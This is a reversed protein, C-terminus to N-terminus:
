RGGWQKNRRRVDSCMDEQDDWGHMDGGRGHVAAAGPELVVAVGVERVERMFSLWSSGRPDCCSCSAHIWDPPKRPV